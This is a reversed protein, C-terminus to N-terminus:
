EDFSRELNRLSDHNERTGEDLFELWYAYVLLAIVGLLTLIILKSLTHEERTTHATHANYCLVPHIDLALM